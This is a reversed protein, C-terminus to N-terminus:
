SAGWATGSDACGCVVCPCTLGDASVQDCTCAAAWATDAQDHIAQYDAGVRTDGYRHALHQLVTRVIQRQHPTFQTTDVMAARFQPAITPAGATAIHAALLSRHLGTLWTTDLIM